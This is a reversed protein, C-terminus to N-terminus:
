KKDFMGLIKRSTFWGVGFLILFYVHLIGNNIMKIGWFYLLSVDLLFLFNSLIKINRKSYFLIKSNIKLLWGFLLGFLFSYILSYIQIKLSMM